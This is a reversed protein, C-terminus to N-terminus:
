EHSPAEAAAQAFTVPKPRRRLGLLKALTIQKDLNAHYLAHQARAKGTSTELGRLLLDEGKAQTFMEVRALEDILRREATTVHDAGGLDTLHQAVLAQHEAVFDPVAMLTRSRRGDRLAPGPMGPVFRGDKGRVSRLRDLLGRGEDLTDAAPGTEDM